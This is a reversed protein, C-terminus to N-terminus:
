NREPFIGALRTSLVVEVGFNILRNKLTKLTGSKRFGELVYCMHRLDGQFCHVTPAGFEPVISAPTRISSLLERIASNEGLGLVFLDGHREVDKSTENKGFIL